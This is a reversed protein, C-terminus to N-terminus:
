LSCVKHLEGELQQDICVLVLVFHINTALSRINSHFISSLGCRSTASMNGGSFLRVQESDRSRRGGDGDGDRRSLSGM